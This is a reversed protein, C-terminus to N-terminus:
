NYIISHYFSLIITKKLMDSLEQDTINEFSIKAEM